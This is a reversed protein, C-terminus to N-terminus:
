SAAGKPWDDSTTGRAPIRTGRKTVLYWAADDESWVFAIVNPIPDGKKFPSDVQAADKAARQLLPVGDVTTVFTPGSEWASPAPLWDLREAYVEPLPGGSMKAAIAPLPDLLWYSGGRNVSVDLHLHPSLMGGTTAVPQGAAVRDGVKVLPTNVHGFTIKLGADTLVTVNGVGGTITDAFSGCGQGWDGSGANGVCRVLGALPTHVTTGLPLFLDNGTHRTDGSTGHGVGYKYLHQGPNDENFGFIPGQLPVGGTIIRVVDDISVSKPKPAPTIGGAAADIQRMLEHMDALYQRPTAGDEGPIDLGPTPYYTSLFREEPTTGPRVPFMGASFLRPWGSRDRPPTSATASPLPAHSGSTGNFQMIGFAGSGGQNPIMQGGSEIVAMAKLM